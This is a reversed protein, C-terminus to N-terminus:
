MDRPHGRPACIVLSGLFGQGVRPLLSKGEREKAMPLKRIVPSPVWFWFLGGGLPGM